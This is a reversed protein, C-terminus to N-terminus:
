EIADQPLRLDQINLQVSRLGQYDNVELHYCLDIQGVGRLEEAKEGNRWYIAKVRGPPSALRPARPALEQEAAGRAERRADGGALRCHLFLHSHSGTRAAKVETE